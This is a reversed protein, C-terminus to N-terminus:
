IKFSLIIYNEGLHHSIDVDNMRTQLTKTSILEYFHMFSEM